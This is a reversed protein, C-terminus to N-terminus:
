SKHSIVMTATMMGHHLKCRASISTGIDQQVHGLTAANCLKVWLLLSLKQPEPLPDLGSFPLKKLHDRFWKQTNMDKRSPTFIIDQFNQKLFIVM